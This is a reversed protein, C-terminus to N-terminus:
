QKKPEKFSMLMMEEEKPKFGYYKVSPYKNKFESKLKFTRDDTLEIPTTSSDLKKLWFGFDSYPVGLRKSRQRFEYKYANRLYALYNEADSLDEFVLISYNEFKLETGPVWFSTLFNQILYGENQKGDKDRTKSMIVYRAM